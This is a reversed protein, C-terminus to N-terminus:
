GLTMEHCRGPADGRADVQKAPPQEGASAFDMALYCAACYPGCASIRHPHPCNSHGLGGRGHLSHKRGGPPLASAYNQMLRRHHFEGGPMLENRRYTFKCEM